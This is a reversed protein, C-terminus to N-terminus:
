DATPRELRDIVFVQVPGQTSELKLGLQEEVATFLGGAAEGSNRDPAASLEPLQVELNFGGTLGTRDVVPRGAFFSLMRALTSLRQGRGVIAEGMATGCLNEDNSTPEGGARAAECDVTAKTLKPGFRGDNRRLALAYIPADRTEAHAVLKFRDVLLARLASPAQGAAAGEPLKGLVDFRDGGVARMEVSSTGLWSPGGVVRGVPIAYAAAVLYRLPANSAEYTRGKLGLGFPLVGSKNAKV